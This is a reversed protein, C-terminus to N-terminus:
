KLTYAKLRQYFGQVTNGANLTQEKASNQVFAGITPAYWASQTITANVVEQGLVTGKVNLSLSMSQTKISETGVTMTTDGNKKVNAIYTFDVPFGNVERKESLSDRSDSGTTVPFRVWFAVGGNQGLETYQLVDKNADIYYYVTDAGTPGTTRLAFVGTKGAITLGSDIVTHIAEYDTGPVKNGSADLQYGEYTFTSGVTFRRLGTPETPAVPDDGSCASLVVAMVALALLHKMSSVIMTVTVPNALVFRSSYVYLTM